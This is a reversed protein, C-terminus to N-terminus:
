CRCSRLSTEVIVPNQSSLPPHQNRSPLPPPQNQGGGPNEAKERHSSKTTPRIPLSRRDHFSYAGTISSGTPHLIYRALITLDPSPHCIM